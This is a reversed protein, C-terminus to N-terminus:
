ALGTLVFAAWNEPNSDREKARIMAAQLARADSQGNSRAQMFYEMLTATADDEVPRLSTVVRNAGISLFARNLLGFDQGDGVGTGTDCGSLVLLELGSPLNLEYIERVTLRGDYEGEPALHIASNMPFEGDLEGHAILMLVGVDAINTRLDAETADLIPTVNLEQGARKAEQQALPLTPMNAAEPQALVLAASLPTQEAERQALLHLTTASPISSIAFHDILYVGHDDRLAAFPLYNLAGEPSIILESYGSLDDRLPMILLHYLESLIDPDGPSLRYERVKEALSTHTVTEDLIVPTIKGDAVIYVVSVYDGIDYLLMATDAPIHSLIADHSVPEAVIQQLVVSRQARMREQLQDQEAHLQNLNKQADDLDSDSTEANQYIELLTQAEVIERRLAEDQLILQQSVGDQLNVNKNSLEARISYARGREVVNFAAFPDDDVLKLWASLEFAIDSSRAIETVADDVVAGKMLEEFISVSETLYVGATDYNEELIEVWGLGALVGAENQRLTLLRSDQLSAEFDARASELDGLFLYTNGRSALATARVGINNYTESITIAEQFYDLAADVDGIQLKLMALSHYTSGAQWQLDTLEWLDIARLYAAESDEYLSRALFLDGLNTLAVAQSDIDRTAEHSALSQQMYHLATPFEGQMFYVMGLNNSLLGEMCRRKATTQELELAENFVDLARAYEGRALYIVGMESLLAGEILNLGSERQMQLAEEYIALADGYQGLNNYSAALTFLSLSYVNRGFRTERIVPITRMDANIAEFAALAEAFRGHSYLNVANELRGNLGLALILLKPLQPGTDQQSLETLSAAMEEPTFITAIFELFSQDCIAAEAENTQAQVSFNLNLLLTISLLIHTLNLPKM